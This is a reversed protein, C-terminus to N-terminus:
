CCCTFPVCFIPIIFFLTFTNQITQKLGYPCKCFVLMVFVEDTPHGTNISHHHILSTEKLHEKFREEFTRCIQGIYEDNCTHDGCQFWYIAGSKKAMADKDNPNVLLNKITSDGKFHIQIGYRSCIKKISKCLSQTYPIVIYDKTKVGNTTPKTGTTGQSAPGSQIAQCAKERGQGLGM